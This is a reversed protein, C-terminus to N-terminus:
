SSANAVFAPRRQALLSDNQLTASSLNYAGLTAAPMGYTPRSGMQRVLGMLIAPPVNYSAAIQAIDTDSPAPM